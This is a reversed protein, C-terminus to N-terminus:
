SPDREYVVVGAAMTRTVQLDRDLFVLDTMASPMLRDRDTLGLLDAPTSTVAPLAEQLSCGAFRM